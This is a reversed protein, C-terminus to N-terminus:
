RGHLPVVAAAPNNMAASIQNGILNAARRLPDADLHAYRATTTPQSHGLLKGIMPLGLSAGAGTSAFSHRLDHLRVGELGAARSVAAWPKKLDARPKYNPKSKNVDGKDSVSGPFIYPNKEDRALIQLVSLAASPLYITKRGTKSDPLHMLGRNWDVYEWKAHLIERLRAGTLILLRIAAVAHPDIRTFRPGKPLHKANPGLVDANWPLGTSEARRLADGLRALEETSLYREKPKEPYHEVGRAPNAAESVEDRSGAWNWVNSFLAIARNAAGPRDSLGAHMRSIDVKRIGSMVRSGLAPLIHLDLLRQYESGTRPKRKPVVHLSMFEEAVERLTRAGRAARRKEIPDEGSEVAGLVKKAASRAEDPTLRGHEGLKMRRSRGAQRFQAVYVKRGSPYAAVGFGSLADDWLFVRDATHPCRLAEVTRKGIRKSTM